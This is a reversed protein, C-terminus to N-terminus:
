TAKRGALANAAMEEKVWDSPALAGEQIQETYLSLMKGTEMMSVTEVIREPPELEYHSAFNEFFHIGQAKDKHSRFRRWFKSWDAKKLGVRPIFTLAMFSKGFEEGAIQSLFCCRAYHGHQLLLEAENVLEVANAHAKLALLRLEEVSLARVEEKSRAKRGSERL